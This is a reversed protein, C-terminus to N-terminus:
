GGGVLAVSTPAAAGRARTRREGEEEASRRLAASTRGGRRGRATPGGVEEEVLAGWGRGLLHHLSNIGHGKARCSAQRPRQGLKRAGGASSAKSRGAAVPLRLRNVLTPPLYSILVVLKTGELV